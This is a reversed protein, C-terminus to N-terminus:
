SFETALCFSMRSSRNFHKYPSTNPTDDDDSDSLDDDAEAAAEAEAEAEATDAAAIPAESISWESGSPDPSALPAEFKWDAENQLYTLLNM